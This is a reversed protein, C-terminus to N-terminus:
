EMAKAKQKWKEIAIDFNLEEKEQICAPPEPFSHVAKLYKAPLVRQATREVREAAEYQAPTLRISHRIFQLTGGKSATPLSSL